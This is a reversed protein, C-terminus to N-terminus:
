MKINHPNALTGANKKIQVGKNLTVVPRVPQNASNGWSNHSFIGWNTYATQYNVGGVGFVLGSNRDEWIGRTALFYRWNYGGNEPGFVMELQIATLNVIDEEPLYFENYYTDISYNTATMGNNIEPHYENVGNYTGTWGEGLYELFKSVDSFTMSRATGVNAKSFLAQCMNNLVTIGNNYGTAGALTLNQSNHGGYISGGINGVPTESVLTIQNNSLDLIRWKLDAQTTFAQFTTFTQNSSHGTQNALATYSANTPVYDV